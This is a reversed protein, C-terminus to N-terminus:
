DRRTVRSGIQGPPRGGRDHLPELDLNLAKLAAGALKEASEMTKLLPHAKGDVLKGDREVLARCERLLQRNRCLSDLLVLAAPDTLRYGAVLASWLDAEPQALDPPAACSTPLQTINRATQM